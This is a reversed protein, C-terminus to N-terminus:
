FFSPSLSHEGISPVVAVSAATPGTCGAFSTVPPPRASFTARIRTVPAFRLHQAPRRPPPRGRGRHQHRPRVISPAYRIPDGSARPLPSPKQPPRSEGSAAPRRESSAAPRGTVPPSISHSPWTPSRPGTRRLEPVRHDDLTEQVLATAIYSTTSM